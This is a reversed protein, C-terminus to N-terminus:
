LLLLTKRKSYIYERRLFKSKYIANCLAASFWRCKSDRFNWIRKAKDGGWKRLRASGRQKVVPVMLHNLDRITKTVSSRRCREPVISGSHSDHQLHWSLRPRPSILYRNSAFLSIAFLRIGNASIDACRRENWWLRQHQFNQNELSAPLFSTLSISGSRHTISSNTYWPQWLHHFRPISDLPCSLNRQPSDIPHGIVITSKPTDLCFILFSSYEPRTVERM